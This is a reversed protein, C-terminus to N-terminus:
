RNFPVENVWHFGRHRLLFEEEGMPRLRAKVHVGALVGELRLHEGERVATLEGHQTRDLRDVVTLVGREKDIRCGLRGVTGDSSVTIFGVSSIAVQRWGKPDAPTTPISDREMAVVQYAGELPGREKGDGYSTYVEWTQHVILISLGAILLAKFVPVGRPWRGVLPPTGLDANPVPRNRVLLDVLRRADRALLIAIMLLLHTSFIKVPVDYAYNMAAVNVMVGLLVLAGLTTTRRFFLLAGGVVEAFGALFSYLTSQGMFTWLLGMPSTQGIPILLRGPSPMPFQAKLVKAMGYTLMTFALLYRLYIRLVEALARHDRRRRDVLSWVLSGAGAVLVLVPLEVYHALQDGSGNTMPPHVDVRFLVQGLWSVLQYWGDLYFRVLTGIGPLDVLVPPAGFLVLYIFGFRVLHLRALSWPEPRDPVPPTV